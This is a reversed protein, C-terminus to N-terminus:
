EGEVVPREPIGLVAAALLELAAAVVHRRVQTRSGSTHLESVRVGEPGALAIYALGAPKGEQRDPGAVGTTSVALDSQFLRLAGSVMEAACEASVVGTRRVTEPDVGLLAQKASTAYTVAGGVYAASAGPAATLASALDGGTLSEATAVTLGRAVLLDILQAPNVM